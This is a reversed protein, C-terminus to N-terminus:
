YGGQGSEGQVIQVGASVGLRNAGAAIMARSTAADRIGGSAKVGTTAGAVRRMLAVDEATAGKDAFGTSTKVFAAGAAKSLLCAAIKREDDLLATELIVKVPRGEASKAVAAIDDFVARWDGALLWGVNLVMDIEEAGARVASLTEFAKAETAMAGLPFGVVTCVRVGSGELKEACFGTWCSNVCVSAFRHILAGDCLAAVQDRTANAKLLTQDMFRALGGELGPPSWPEPSWRASHGVAPLVQAALREILADHANTM